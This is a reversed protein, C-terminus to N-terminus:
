RVGSIKRTANFGKSKKSHNLPLPNNDYKGGFGKAKGNKHQAKREEVELQLQETNRDEVTLEFEEILEDLHRFRAGYEVQVESFDFTYIKRDEAKKFQVTNKTGNQNGLYGSKLVGDFPAIANYGKLDKLTKIQPVTEHNEVVAQTLAADELVQKHSDLEEVVPEDIEQSVNEMITNIPQIQKISQAEDLKKELDAIKVRYEVTAEEVRVTVDKETFQKKLKPQILSADYGLETLAQFVHDTFVTEHLAIMLATEKVIVLQEPTLKYKKALLQWDDNSMEMELILHTKKKFHFLKAIASVDKNQLEGQERLRALCQGLVDVPVKMLNVAATCTLYSPLPLASLEEQVSEDLAEWTKSMMLCHKIFSTNGSQRLYENWAEIAQKKSEAEAVLNEKEQRYWQGCSIYYSLSRSTCVPPAISVQSQALM